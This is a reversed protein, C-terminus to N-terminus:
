RRDHQSRYALLNDVHCPEGLACWCALNKAGTRALAERQWTRVTVLSVDPWRDCRSTESMERGSMSGELWRRHRDVAGQRGYVDVPFPNGLDTARDAKVTDPPMRWGKARSLQVRVGTM